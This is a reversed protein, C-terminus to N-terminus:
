SRPAARRRSGSSRRSTWCPRRRVASKAGFKDGIAKDLDAPLTFGLDTLLRSRPDQSGYSFYGEYPSAMLGTKGKFEPHETRIKEFRGEVGKV